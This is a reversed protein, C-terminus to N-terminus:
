PWLVARVVAQGIVLLALTGGIWGGWAGGFAYGLGVFVVITAIMSSLALQQGAPRHKM